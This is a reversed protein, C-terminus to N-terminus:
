LRARLTLFKAIASDSAVCIVQANNMYAETWHYDNDRNDVHMTFGNWIM